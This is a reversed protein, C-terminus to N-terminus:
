RPFHRNFACGVFVHRNTKSLESSRKLVRFLHYCHWTPGVLCLLSLFFFFFFFFFFFSFILVHDFWWRLVTLLLLDVQPPFPYFSVRCHYLNIRFPVLILKKLFSDAIAHLSWCNCTLKHRCSQIHILIWQVITYSEMKKSTQDLHGM